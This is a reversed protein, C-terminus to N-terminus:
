SILSKMQLMRGLLLGFNKTFLAYMGNPGPAKTPQMQNLAESVEEKTYPKDMMMKMSTSLLTDVKELTRDMNVFENGQFLEEFYRVLVEAIHEEKERFVDAVDKLRTINNIKM